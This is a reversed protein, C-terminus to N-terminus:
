PFDFISYQEVLDAAKEAGPERRVREGLARAGQQLRRDGLATEIRRRLGEAGLRRRPLPKTGAGLEQLRKAWYFQDVIHPVPVSPVGARAAAHTTGAGCHHVIAGAREFLWGHPVWDTVFLGSGAEGAEFGAWGKQLLAPAGVRRLAELLMEQAERNDSSAMSGFTVVVPRAHRALFDALAPDPTWEPEDQFWAGTVVFNAPLDPWTRGLHTSCAVLNLLPSFTRFLRQRPFRAGAERLSQELQGDLGAMVRDGLSWVFRNLNKGLSPFYGPARYVTPIGADEFRVAIWPIDLHQAAAIALNDVTHCLALDCDALAEVMGRFRRPAEWLTLLSVQRLHELLNGTQLMRDMGQRFLAVDPDAGPSRFIAGSSEFSLRFLNFSVAVVEHGRARLRGALALFPQVDGTSGVTCLAIRM